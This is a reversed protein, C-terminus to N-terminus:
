LSRSASESSPRVQTLSQRPSAHGNLGDSAPLEFREYARQSAAIQQEAAALLAPRREDASDWAAAVAAALREALDPADMSLVICGGPFLDALGQLKADYYRSASLAVVPIGQALAFVAGHYSGPSSLGAAM